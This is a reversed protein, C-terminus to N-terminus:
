GRWIKKKLYAEDINEIFYLNVLLNVIQAKINDPYALMVLKYLDDKFGDRKFNDMYDMLVSFIDLDLKYKQLMFSLDSDGLVDM